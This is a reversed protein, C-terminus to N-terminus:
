MFLLEKPDQIIKFLTFPHQSEFTEFFCKELPGGGSGLVPTHARHKKLFLSCGLGLCLLGRAGCGHPM